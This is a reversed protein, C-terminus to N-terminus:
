SESTGMCRRYIPCHKFDRQIIMTIPLNTPNICYCDPEPNELLPCIEQTGIWDPAGAASTGTTSLFEDHEPLGMCRRYIHCHRFDNLCFQVAIPINVSTLNICYCDPKPNEM